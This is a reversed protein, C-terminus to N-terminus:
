ADVDLSANYYVKTMPAPPPMTSPVYKNRWMMEEWSRALDAMATALMDPTDDPIPEGRCDFLFVPVLEYVRVRMVPTYYGRGVPVVHRRNTM